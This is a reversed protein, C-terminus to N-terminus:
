VNVEKRKYKEIVRKEDIDLNELSYKLLLIIIQNLSTNKIKSLAEIDEIVNSPLRLTKSIGIHNQSIKVNQM